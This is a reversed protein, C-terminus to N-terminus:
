YNKPNEKNGKSLLDALRMDNNEILEKIRSAYRCTVMLHIHWDEQNANSRLLYPVMGTVNKLGEITDQFDEKVLTDMFEQTLEIIKDNQSSKEVMISFPGDCMINDEDVRIGLDNEYFQWISDVVRNNESKDMGFWHCNKKTLYRVLEQFYEKGDVKYITAM